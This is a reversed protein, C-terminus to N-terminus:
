SGRYTSYSYPSLLLPVHYNAQGDAIGFRIVVVDLFAPDPLEAGHARFYDGAHFSLEYVGTKIPDGLLLPEDTRGDRNTSLVKLKRGDADRLEIVVGAAPTGRSVDLVHTSVRAM